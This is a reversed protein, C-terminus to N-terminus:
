FPIDDGQIETGGFERSLESDPLYSTENIGRLVINEHSLYDGIDSDDWSGWYVAFKHDVNKFYFEATKVKRIVENTNSKLSVIDPVISILVNKQIYDSEKYKEKSLNSNVRQLFELKLLNKAEIENIKELENKLLYPATYDNSILKKSLYKDYEHNTKPLQKLVSQKIMKESNVTKLQALYENKKIDYNKLKKPTKYEIVLDAFGILAGAHAIPKEISIKIDEPAHNLEARIFSEAYNLEKRIFWDCIITKKQPDTIEEPIQDDIFIKL